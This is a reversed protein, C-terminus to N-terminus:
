ELTVMGRKLATTAAQTRDKVHLKSLISNVHNKVTSESLGLCDAIEKNSQGQVILKLVDMERQSLEGDPVRKALRAAVEQPLYYEGEAVKRLAVIFEEKTVDKLLYGQAGAKLAQYISEDGDYTTLVLIHAKPDHARIASIAEVGGVRPMRLDMLVADPKLKRYLDLAEEGNAAEAIVQMNAESEIMSRLGMRVVVHDDALLIKIPSAASM